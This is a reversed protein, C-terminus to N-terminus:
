EHAVFAICSAMSRASLTQLRETRRWSPSRQRPAPTSGCAAPASRCAEFAEVEDGDEEEEDEEEDEHPPQNLYIHVSM